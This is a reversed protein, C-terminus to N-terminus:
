TKALHEYPFTYLRQYLQCKHISGFDKVHLIQSINQSVSLLVGVEFFKKLSFDQGSYHPETDTGEWM